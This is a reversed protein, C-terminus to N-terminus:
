SKAREREEAECLASANRAAKGAHQLRDLLAQVFNQAAEVGDLTPGALV